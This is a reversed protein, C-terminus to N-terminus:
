FRHIKTNSQLYPLSGRCYCYLFFRAAARISISFLTNLLGAQCIYSTGYSDTFASQEVMKGAFIIQDIVNQGIVKGIQHIYGFSM